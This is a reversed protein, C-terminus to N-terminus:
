LHVNLVEIPYFDIHKKSRRVIVCPLQSHKLNIQYKCFFYQDVTIRKYGRFAYIKKAPCYSFKEFVFERNTHTTTIQSGKLANELDYSHSYFKQNLECPTCQLFNCCYTIM